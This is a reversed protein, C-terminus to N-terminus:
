GFTIVMGPVRLGPYVIDAVRGIVVFIGLPTGVAALGAVDKTVPEAAFRIPANQACFSREGCTAIGGGITELPPSCGKRGKRTPVSGM